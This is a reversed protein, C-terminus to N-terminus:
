PEPSATLWPNGSDTGPKASPADDPADMRAADPQVWIRVRDVVNDRWWSVLLLLSIVVLAALLVKPWPSSRPPADEQLHPIVARRELARRALTPTGQQTSTVQALLSRGERGLFNDEVPKPPELAHRPAEGKKRPQPLGTKGNPRPTITPTEPMERKLDPLPTTRALTPLPLVEPAETPAFMMPLGSWAPAAIGAVPGESPVPAPEDEPDADLSFATAPISKSPSPSPLEAVEDQPPAPPMPVVPPSSPEPPSIAVPIAPAAPEVSLPSAPTAPEPTAKEPPPPVDPMGFWVTESTAASSSQAMRAPEWIVPGFPFDRAPEEPEAGPRVFDAEQIPVGDDDLLPLSKPKLLERVEDTMPVEADLVIASSDVWDQEAVPSATADDAWTRPPMLFIVPSPQGPAAEQAARRGTGANLLKVSAAAAVGAALGVRGSRGLALGALVAGAAIAAGSWPTAPPAPEHTEPPM